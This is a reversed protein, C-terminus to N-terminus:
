DSFRSPGLIVVKSRVHLTCVDYQFVCVWDANIRGKRRDPVRFTGRVKTVAPTVVALPANVIDRSADLSELIPQVDETVVTGLSYPGRRLSDTASRLDDNPTSSARM